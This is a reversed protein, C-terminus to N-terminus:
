FFDFNWFRGFDNGFQGFTNQPLMNQPVKEPSKKKRLTGHLTSDEFRPKLFDSIKCFELFIDLRTKFM